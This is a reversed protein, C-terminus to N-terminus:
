IELQGSILKPLVLDRTLGLELNESNNSYMLEFFRSTKEHFANMVLEDPITISLDSIIEGSISPYAGGDALRGLEELFENRTLFSYLFSWPVKPTFVVFGTSVIDEKSPHLALFFAGRDPRVSSLITDGHSIIRKARSPAELRPYKTADKVVGKWVGSIEIYNIIELEHSKSLTNQNFTSIDKVKCVRWGKPIMGLESEEFSDPFLAATEDDMGFPRRGEAKARVPGFDIFWEKFIARAMAELTENMQNNLEIKEDLAKLIEVAKLQIKLEPLEVELNRFNTKNFKPIASGEVISQILNQGYDSAFLYYLFDQNVESSKSRVVISNPGVTIPKDLKPALFCKGCYAGVNSIILDRPSLNSKKLFNYSSESVYVFPGKWNNNFDTLRILYAFGDNDLYQVNERLSAFSGSAVFDTVEAIDVVKARMM